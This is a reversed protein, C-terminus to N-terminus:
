LQKELYDVIDKAVESKLKLGYEILEGNQHIISIKNTDTAFGAGKHEMTNLVIFDLNKSKLKVKANEIANDTELSFGILIQKESKLSGLHALIDKTKVLHLLMRVQGKQKKIKSPSPNEPTFDAVAAALIGVSCNSFHAVASDFMEKATQVNIRQINPHNVEISTPGSVLVVLAGREALENALAFGMKGSSRNGIFRVPDIPEHTPGATLLIKKGQLM